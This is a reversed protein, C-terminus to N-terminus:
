KGQMFIFNVCKIEVIQIRDFMQIVKMFYVQLTNNKNDTL